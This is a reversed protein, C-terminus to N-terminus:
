SVVSKEVEITRRLIKRVINRGKLKSFVFFTLMVMGLMRETVTLREM